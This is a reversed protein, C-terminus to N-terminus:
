NHHHKKRQYKNKTKLKKTLQVNCKIKNQTIINVIVNLTGLIIIKDM